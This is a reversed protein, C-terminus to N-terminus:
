KAGKNLRLFEGLKYDWEEPEFKVMGTAPYFTYEGFKIVKGVNYFDIRIHMFGESLKEALEVMLTFGEPKAPPIESNPKGRTFPLRNFNEDFYDYRASTDRGSAVLVARVKGNFCYFKYDCPLQGNEGAIYEEIIIRPEVNKYPWERSGYYYNHKLCKKIKKEAAKKNFRRKDKVVVVGGSDHTCKIVFSEPLTDFDIEEWKEYVGLTPIIYEEGIKEAVIKKVEAKDVLSTYEPKRDHIKLWQLKENFTQPNTLDLKKGMRIKYLKKLYKEDSMGKFLGRAGLSEFILAPRKIIEIIRKSM